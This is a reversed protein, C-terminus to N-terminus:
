VYSHYSNYVIIAVDKRALPTGKQVNVGNLLGISQAISLYGDPYGGASDAENEYGLARVIMTVAQEYTVTDGPGFNGNGYGNVIGLSAAQSIYGSAWHGAPVDTFTGGDASMGETEGLIRCIVAAMEARTVSKDPNFNGKEDGVMISLESLFAAAEAYSANADVDPFASAASVPCILMVAILIGALLCRAKCKM